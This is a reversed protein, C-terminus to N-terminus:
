ATPLTRGADAALHGEALVGAAAHSAGVGTVAELFSGRDLSYAGVPGRAVVSATRPVDRILAIEGVGSGPALARLSRGNQLVEVSGTDIVLYRDGVDGERILSEGDAFQTPALTAALHEVTALSLPGFLPQARLLAVRRAAVPGGEDLRRVAPWELLAAIPLIAGTVVLAAPTGIWGILIPAAIGGIAPGLNAVGDLLGLLAVRSTNPTTRQALTFGAVDLISNSIGISAMAVIAIVPQVILGMLAIPAGWGALALTFAPGLRTRGALGIAAVAGILGGVGMAANLTGVGGEGLGLLEISAVVVLVTLLGRVFTQLGFGVIVLRPGPVTSVVRLGASIDRVVSGVSAPERRRGVVPIRLGILAVLGAIYIAVVAIIAWVPGGAVILLGSIAPGVFMGLSEAASSTVNSAILQEPTRGCAPLLGMHVPRTFAGIGAEIAVMLALAWFPAQGAVVLVAGVAALTRVLNTARLVSELSWRSAPLGALPATIAPTLYRVLGLVGVAVPGGLDYAIVLTAVLLAWKGAMVCFWAFTLRRIAPEALATRMASLALDLRRTRRESM